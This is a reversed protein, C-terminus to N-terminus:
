EDSENKNGGTGKDEDRAVAKGEEEQWYEHWLRELRDIYSLKDECIKKEENWQRGSDQCAIKDRNSYRYYGYAIIGIVALFLIFKILHKFLLWLVWIGLAGYMLIKSRIPDIGFIYASLGYYIVACGLIVTVPSHLMWLLIAKLWSKKDDNSM